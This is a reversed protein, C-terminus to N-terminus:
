KCDVNSTCEMNYYYEEGLDIGYKLALYQILKELSTYQLNNIPKHDYDGMVAISVTSINNWVSHAAVSYDGGNKGEFIEGDYGIIYNYGIDGWSRSLAHYRYIDQIGKWSDEYEDATHHVVIANVYDSKQTKWALPRGEESNSIRETVTNEKAFYTNIYSIKEAYVKAAKEQAKKQSETLPTQSQKSWAALKEQWYSSDRYGFEEDAGWQDRSIITIDQVDQKEIAFVTPFITSFFLFALFLYKM